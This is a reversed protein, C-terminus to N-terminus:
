RLEGTLRGECDTKKKETKTQKVKPVNENTQFHDLSEQVHQNDKIRVEKVKRPTALTQKRGRQSPNTQKRESQIPNLNNRELYKGIDVVDLVRTDVSQFVSKIEEDLEFTSLDDKIVGFLVKKEDMRHVTIVSDSM